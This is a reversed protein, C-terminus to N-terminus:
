PDCTTNEHAYIIALALLVGHNQATALAFRPAFQSGPNKPQRYYFPAAKGGAYANHRPLVRAAQPAITLDGCEGM